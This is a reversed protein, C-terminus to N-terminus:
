STGKRGRKRAGKLQKIGGLRNGIVQERRFVIARARCTVHSMPGVVIAGSACIVFFSVKLPAPATCDYAPPLFVISAITASNEPLPLSSSSRQHELFIHM